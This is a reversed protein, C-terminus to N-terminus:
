TRGRAGAGDTRTRRRRSARCCSCPTAGPTTRSSWAPGCIASWSRGERLFARTRSSPRSRSPRRSAWSSTWSASPRSCVAAVFAGNGPLKRNKQAPFQFDRNTVVLECHKNELLCRTAYCIEFYGYDKDFALVVADIDGDIEEDALEDPTAGLRKWPEVVTVGSSRVADKLAACGVVYAKKTARGAFWRRAATVTNWMKTEDEVHAGLGHTEFVQRFADPGRSSNNSVFYVQKKQKKLADLTARAATITEGGAWLVGDCDFVVCDYADALM